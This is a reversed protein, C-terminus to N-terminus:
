FIYVLLYYNNVNQMAINVVNVDFQNSFVFKRSHM